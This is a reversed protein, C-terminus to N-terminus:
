KKFVTVSENTGPIRVTSPISTPTFREANETSRLRNTLTGADRGDSYMFDRGSLLSSAIKGNLLGAIRITGKQMEERDMKNQPYRQNDRKLQEDNQYDWFGMGESMSWDGLGFNVSTQIRASDGSLLLEAMGKTFADGMNGLGVVCSLFHIQADDTLLSKFSYKPALETWDSLGTVCSFGVGSTSQNALNRIQLIESKSVASYYQDYNAEDDASASRRWNACGFGAQSKSDRPFWMHGPLGHAHVNFNKIKSKKAIALKSSASLLEDLNSYFITFSGDANQITQPTKLSAGNSLIYPKWAHDNSYPHVSNDKRHFKGIGIEGAHITIGNEAHVVPILFLSFFLSYILAYKM